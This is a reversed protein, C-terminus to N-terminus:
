LSFLFFTALVAGDQELNTQQWLSDIKNVLHQTQKERKHIWPRHEYKM